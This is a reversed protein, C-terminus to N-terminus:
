LFSHFGIVLLSVSQLRLRSVPSSSSGHYIDSHVQRSTLRNATKNNCRWQNLRQCAMRTSLYCILTLKTSSRWTLPLDVRAKKWWEKSRRCLDKKLYRFRKKLYTDRTSIHKSSAWTKFFLVSQTNIWCYHYAQMPKRERIFPAAALFTNNRLASRNRLPCSTPPLPPFHSLCPYSHTRASAHMCIPSLRFTEWVLKIQRHASGTRQCEKARTFGSYRKSPKSGTMRWECRHHMRSFVCGILYETSLFCVKLLVQDKEFM